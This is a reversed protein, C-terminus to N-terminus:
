RVSLRELEVALSAGLLLSADLLEEEDSLPDEEEVADDDDALVGAPVEPPLAPDLAAAGEAQARRLARGPSSTPGADVPPTDDVPEVREARM